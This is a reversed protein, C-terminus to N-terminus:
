VVATERRLALLLDVIRGYSQASQDGGGMTGLYADNIRAGVEATKEQRFPDWYAARDAIDRKVAESLRAYLVGYAGPDATELADMAYLLASVAGSYRFYQDDSAECALYAILNADEERAFGRVHAAEHAAAFPLSLKPINGNVLAEATFPSAIGEFLLKSMLPSIIAAKPRAFGQVPIPWVRAANDLAAPVRALIDEPPVTCRANANEALTECLAILEEKESPRVSLGLTRELPLRFYNLGWGAVFIAAVLCLSAIARIFKRSVLSYVLFLIFIVLLIEVVSFPFISMFRSVASAIPPYIGRSFYKEVLDPRGSAAFRLLLAVPLPLFVWFRKM